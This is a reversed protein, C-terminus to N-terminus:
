DSINLNLYSKMKNIIDLDKIRKVIKKMKHKYKHEIYYEIDGKSKEQIDEFLLLSFEKIIESIDEDFCFEAMDLKYKNREFFEMNLANKRQNIKINRSLENINIDNIDLIKNQINLPENLIFYRLQSYFDVDSNKEHFILVKETLGYYKSFLYYIEYRKEFLIIKYEKDTQRKELKYQKYAIYATLVMTGIAGIMSGTAAWDIESYPLFTIFKM